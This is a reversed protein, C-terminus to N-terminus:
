ESSPTHVSALTFGLAPVVLAVVATVVSQSVWGFALVLASVPAILGYAWKRWFDTTNSWALGSGLVAVLVAGVVPAIDSSFFGAAVLVGMLPTILPHLWARVRGWDVSGSVEARHTM